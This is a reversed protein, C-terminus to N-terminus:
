LEVVMQSEELGKLCRMERVKALQESSTENDDVARLDREVNVEKRKMLQGTEGMRRGEWSAEFRREKVQM